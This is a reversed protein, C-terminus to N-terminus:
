IRSGAVYAKSGTRVYYIYACTVRTVTEVWCRWWHHGNMINIWSCQHTGISNERKLIVRKPFVCLFFDYWRPTTKENIHFIAYLQQVISPIRFCLYCSSLYIYIYIYVVLKLLISPIIYYSIIGFLYLYKWSSKFYSELSRQHQKSLNAKIMKNLNGVLKQFSIIENIDFYLSNELLFILCCHHMVNLMLINTINHWGHVPCCALCSAVRVMVMNM